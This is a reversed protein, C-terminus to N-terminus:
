PKKRRKWAGYAEIMRWSGVAAMVALISDFPVRYKTGPTTIVYTLTFALALLVFLWARAREEKTELLLELLALVLLFGYTLAYGWNMFAASLIIAGNGGVAGKPPYMWPHWLLLFKMGLLGPIESPHAQIWAHAKAYWFRDAEPETRGQMFACSSKRVGDMPTPIGDPPEPTADIWVDNLLMPMALPNYDKYFVRGGDTTLPV